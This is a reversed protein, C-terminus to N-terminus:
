AAKKDVEERVEADNGLRAPRLASRNVTRRCFQPRLRRSLGTECCAAPMDTSDICDRPTACDPLAGPQPGPPRLNL